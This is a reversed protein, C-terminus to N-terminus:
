PKLTDLLLNSSTDLPLKTIVRAARNQLKQLKDRSQGSLCDWVPSCFDFNPLVILTLFKLRLILQFLTSLFSEQMNRRWSKVLIALGLSKTHDVRGIMEDNIRMDVEDGAEAM